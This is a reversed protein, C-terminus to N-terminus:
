AHRHQLGSRGSVLPRPNPTGDRRGLCAAHQRQFPETRVPQGAHLDPGMTRDLWWESVGSEHAPRRKAFGLAQRAGGALIKGDPSFALATFRVWDWHYRKRLQGSAADFLFFEADSPIALLAGDPSFMPLTSSPAACRFRTDGLVAVLEPPVRKPDGGGLSTLVAEPIDARQLADAPISTTTLKPAPKTGAAPQQETVKPLETSTRVRAVRLGTTDSSFFQHIFFGATASQHDAVGNWSGGRCPVQTKNDKVEIHCWEHVNGHMDHLGLRNPLYSGV